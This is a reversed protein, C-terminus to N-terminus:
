NGRIKGGATELNKFIANQTRSMENDTLTRDPSQLTVKFAVAKKGSPLPDGEYIDFLEVKQILSKDTERVIQLFGGIEKERDIVVSIDIEIGPFKPLSKFKRVPQELKLAETFNIEFMAVSYKELDHNKIVQPHVMFVQAITQGHGDIYSIAKQPHAYPALEIDKVEKINKLNFKEFFSEVAGKAKYFLNDAKGKKLVAGCIKKEELPMYQGIEKYTRGIEYIKVCDFYKTNLQLNRLINPVLSIRLHTQDESLYNLLQLHGTHSMMCNKLETEGYFSYNYVEDFGLGYSFLERVRHKKFRETNEIPLKAPLVPLSTEINEYGHMRAIEEILDDEINIDKSARFTPVTVTLTNKGKPSVKFELSQLIHTIEKTPINVGIKSRTKELDLDIKLSPLPPVSKQIDTIPGAVRAGPCLELILEAARKIALEALNPDLSKEFRQVSETRVGLTTSTRRISSANFNASELIISTTKENIGSNEGGIIGAIAVPKEHDAIVLMEESLTRATGDLTTIKERSKAKRVVIGDKIYSKDFAHMPQGLEAMIYNTIDVINNHAGHGTAKLRTKLWDPSPQVKINNIILGCYRPCLGLDKVEVKVSEGSSPLKVKPELPKFKWGKIASIERAIGYHGWLDPRHTLAKNDFEFVVDSKKLIESLPTGPAPKLPSLDLIDEPGEDPNDLGIENSACIMGHSEEGRIKTKELTVPEGEGHWRVQAGPLAVAVYMGEKLNKGGCVIQVTEKGISTKAIKLKDANPHPLIQIVQGVIIKEFNKSEDIIGEVEATKLTLENALDKPDANKPIEVFDKLWELSVYM